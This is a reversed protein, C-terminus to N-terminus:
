KNISDQHNLYYQFTELTSKQPVYEFAEKLRQNSLVPRYRIFGLQEPGYRTLGFKNGLWLGARVLSVPLPLYRKNLLRAIERLTLKGDGALNYIGSRQERIGKIICACVDEDWVFVFPAESGHLGFVFPKQFLNTIQNNVNKGLITGSRFILQKLRPHQNRYEQLMEEVLRKHWAYAFERNGRLQNDESLWAPNDAHYGYAAGSSTVIFQKVGNKICAQLLNRTGEVEVQHLFERTQHPAPEVIAALHVVIMVKHKKILESIESDAIDMQSYIVNAYKMNEDFERIDVAIIRDFNHRCLQLNKLLLGGTYGNAGTILISPEQM